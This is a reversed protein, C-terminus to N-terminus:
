NTITVSASVLQASAAPLSSRHPSTEMSAKGDVLSTIVFLYTQGSRLLDPPVAISTKATSLTTSSLYGVTGDPLTTPGMIAVSYGFPAGIAPPDWSLTVATGNITGANFLDAGNIKPNQVASILPKVAATPLSTTQTNTLIIGQTQGGPVQVAVSASQCVRFTRRWASPFPDSYQVTGAEVDTTLPPNASCSPSPTLSPTLSPTFNGRTWILDIPNSGLVNPGDAAIYPQVSLYFSSGMATTATPAIHDFLPAWASGKVSLNISAPVTPNLAGSITNHGGTTLSLNSLTLAPGLVYGDMSGFAAPEYQRVFANKIVSYDLNGNIALEGVSTTSGPNTSASYPLHTELADFQLLGRAAPPDLSTFSFNIFTTSTTPAALNTPVSYLNNGVDFTSSSTWYTDRPGLRLWYYGAPVNPIEFAGNAGATGTLSQFSGDPQPV